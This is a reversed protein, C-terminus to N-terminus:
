FKIEYKINGSDYIKLIQHEILIENLSKDNEFWGFKIINDKRFNFRHYRIKKNQNFYTYTPKNILVQSFGIKKYLKGNSYRRDAYTIISKPKYKDIFYNLLKSAGGIVQTNLENCFRNLNYYNEDHNKNGLGSRANEFAMLSVLKNEYFLGIKILSNTYGQIHNKNLFDRILEIDSIEKVECKRAYIKNDIIGLKSKIISKVIEKKYIWEDEFVHLLQIGQEECLNTKNLHYNKDKFLESHWYLGNFEIALKYDPIYIDIELKNNFLKYNTYNKINLSDIFIKIENEVISSNEAIPNCLTCINEHKNHILRSYLLSKSIEFVNHKYCYNNINVFDNNIVINNSDINLLKSYKEKFNNDVTNKIKNIVDINKSPNDFGYRILSTCKIQEINNYNGNGYRKKKTEKIKEKVLNLQQPYEIGYKKLNIQKIDNKFSELQFKSKVGYKKLNTEKIKEKIIHNQNPNESGFREINTQKTKHKIEESKQPNDCNYHSQLTAISKNRIIKSQQPYEVGFNNLNTQKTKEKVITAQQAIETGYKKLNTQKIKNRIEPSQLTYKYGSNKIATKERKIQVNIDLGICKSSCYVSYGQSFKLFNVKEGCIKCTPPKSLDNLLLYLMENFSINHKQYHKCINNYLELYNNKIYSETIRRKVIVGNESIIEM